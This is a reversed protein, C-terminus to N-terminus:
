EDDSDSTTAAPVDCAFDKFVAARAKAAREEYDLILDSLDTPDMDVHPAVELLSGLDAWVYDLKGEKDREHVHVRAHWLYEVHAVDEFEDNRRQWEELKSPDLERRVRVPPLPPTSHCDHAPHSLASLAPPPPLPPFRQSRIAYVQSIWADSGHALALTPTPSPSLLPENQEDAHPRKKNGNKKIEYCKKCVKNPIKGYWLCATKAGCSLGACVGSENPCPLPPMTRAGTILHIGKLDCHLDM